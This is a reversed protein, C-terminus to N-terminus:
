KSPLVLPKRKSHLQYQLKVGGFLARWKYNFRREMPANFTDDLLTRSLYMKSYFGVGMKSSLMYDIAIKPVFGYDYSRYHTEGYADFPTDFYFNFSPFDEKTFVLEDVNLLKGMFFGVGFRLKVKEGVEFTPIFEVNLYKFNPFQKYFNTDFIQSQQSTPYGAIIAASGLGEETPFAFVELAKREQYSISLEIGLSKSVKYETGLSIHIGRKPKNYGEMMNGDEGKINSYLLGTSFNVNSFQAFLNFSALFLSTFIIAKM